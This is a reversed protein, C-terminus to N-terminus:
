KLFMTYKFKWYFIFKCDVIINRKILTQIKVSKLILKFFHNSSSYINVEDNYPM